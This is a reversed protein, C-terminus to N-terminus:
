IGRKEGRGGDKERGNRKETDIGRGGGEDAM